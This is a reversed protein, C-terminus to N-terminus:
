SNVKQFSKDDQSLFYILFVFALRGQDLTIWYHDFLGTIMIFVLAALLWTKRKALSFNILNLFLLYFLVFGFLGSESLILAYINHVPQLLYNRSESSINSYITSPIFNNMGVGFVPSQLFVDRTLSLLQIRELFNSELKINPKLPLFLSFISALFILHLMFLITWRGFRRHLLLVFLVVVLSVFSNLSFALFFPLFSLIITLFVIKRRQKIQYVISLLLFIIVVFFGSLVNPHPFTSYARLYDKGLLSFLAIGPTNVDFSREGLFWFMGGLTRGFIVQFVGLWGFFVLSISCAFFFLSYPNNGYNSLYFLLLFLPLVKLFYFFTNQPFVSTFLNVLFFLFVLFLFDKKLGIQKRNKLILIRFIFIFFLFYILIDVLSVSFSLYDVRVGFIFSQPFWFHKALQSPSLFFVLFLLVEESYYSIRRFFYLNHNKRFQDVPM